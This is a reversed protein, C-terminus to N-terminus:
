YNKYSIELMDPKKVELNDQTLNSQLNSLQMIGQIFRM